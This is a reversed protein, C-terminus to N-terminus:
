LKERVSITIVVDKGLLNKILDVDKRYDKYITPSIGQTLIIDGWLLGLIHNGRERGFSALTLTADMGLSSQYTM